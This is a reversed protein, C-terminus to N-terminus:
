LLWNVDHDFVSVIKDIFEFGTKGSWDLYGNVTREGM